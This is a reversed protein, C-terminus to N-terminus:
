LTESKGFVKKIVDKLKMWFTYKRYYNQQLVTLGKYHLDDILALMDVQPEKLIYSM